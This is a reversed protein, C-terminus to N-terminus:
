SRRDTAHVILWTGEKLDLGAKGARRRACYEYAASISAWQVFCLPPPLHKNIVIVEMGSIVEDEEREPEIMMWGCCNVHCTASARKLCCHVIFQMESNCTVDFRVLWGALWGVLGCDM